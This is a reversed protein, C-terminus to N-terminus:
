GAYLTPLLSCTGKQFTSPLFTTGEADERTLKKEFDVTKKTQVRRKEDV